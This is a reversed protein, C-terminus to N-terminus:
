VVRPCRETAQRGCAARAKSCEFIQLKQMIEERALEHNREELVAHAYELLKEGQGGAVLLKTFVGAQELDGSEKLDGVEGLATKLTTVEVQNCCAISGFLRLDDVEGM